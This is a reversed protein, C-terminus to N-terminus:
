FEDEMGLIDSFLLNERTVNHNKDVLITWPLSHVAWTQKIAERQNTQAVEVSAPYLTDSLGTDTVEVVITEVPLESLEALQRVFRRSPRQELDVFCILLPKNIFTESNTVGINDLRPIPKNLLSATLRYERLHGSRHDQIDINPKLDMMFLDDSLPQNVEVRNVKIDCQLTKQSLVLVRTQYFAWGTNTPFWCGPMVEKYDLAWHELNIMGNSYRKIGHLLPRSQGVFWKHVRGSARGSYTVRYELVYCPIGQYDERGVLTYDEPQGFFDFTEQPQQDDLPRSWWFTHHQSRPWGLYCSLMAHFMRDYDKLLVYTERDQHYYKEHIRLENGDWVKEQRWYGPDDSLYRMRSQDLAYALEQEHTRRLGPFRTESPDDIDFQAKIEKKRKAIGQTTTTWTPTAEILLSDVEHLWMESQRVARVLDAANPEIVQTQASCLSVAMCLLTILTIQKM